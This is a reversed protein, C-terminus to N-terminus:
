KDVLIADGFFRAHRFAWILVLLYESVLVHNEAVLDIDFTTSFFMVFIIISSIVLHRVSSVGVCSSRPFRHSIEPRIYM